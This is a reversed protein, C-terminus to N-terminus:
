APIVDTHVFDAGKFLLPEATDKALAYAPAGVIM